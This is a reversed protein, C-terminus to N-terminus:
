PLTALATRAGLPRYSEKDLAIYAFTTRDSEFIWILFFNCQRWGYHRGTPSSQRSTVDYIYFQSYRHGIVSLM